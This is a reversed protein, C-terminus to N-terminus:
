AAERDQRRGRRLVSVADHDRPGGGSAIAQMGDAVEPGDRGLQGEAPRGLATLSLEAERPERGHVPKPEPREHREVFSAPEGHRGQLASLHLHRQQERAVPLDVGVAEHQELVVAM